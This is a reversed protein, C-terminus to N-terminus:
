KFAYIIHIYIILSSVTSSMTLRVVAIIFKNVDTISATILILFAPLYNKICGFPLPNVVRKRQINYYIYIFSDLINAVIVQIIDMVAKHM